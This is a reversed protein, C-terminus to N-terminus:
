WTSSSGFYTSARSPSVGSMGARAVKEVWRGYVEGRGHLGSVGGKKAHNMIQNEAGDVRDCADCASVQFENLPQKRSVATERDEGCGDGVVCCPDLRSPSNAFNSSCSATCALCEQVLM